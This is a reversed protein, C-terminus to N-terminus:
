RFRNIETNLARPIFLFISSLSIPLEPIWLCPLPKRQIKEEVLFLFSIMQRERSGWVVCDVLRSAARSVEAKASEMRSDVDSM